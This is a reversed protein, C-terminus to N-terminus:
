LTHVKERSRADYNWTWRNVLYTALLILALFIGVLASNIMTSSGSFGAFLQNRSVAFPALKNSVTLMRTTLVKSGDQTLTELAVVHTGNTLYTTNLTPANGGSDKIVRGDVSLRTRVANHVPNILRLTGSVYPSSDPSIAIPTRSDSLLAFFPLTLGPMIPGSAVNAQRHTTIQLSTRESANGTSDFAEVSMDYTKNPELGRQIFRNSRTTGIEQNGNFIRYGAVRINDSSHRWAIGLARDTILAARLQTPTNPAQADTTPAATKVILAASDPSINGATDFAKVTYSYQSKTNVTKDVFSNTDSTAIQVNDRSVKYGAVRQNDTSPAWSLAVQNASITDAQLGIPTSPAETDAPPANAVTFTISKEVAGLNYTAVARLTHQGNTLQHTDYPLCTTANHGGLCYPENKESITPIGDISFDVRSTGAMNVPIAQITANNSVTASSTLGTITLSPPPTPTPSPSPSTSPSPTSTITPSPQNSPTPIPTPTQPVATPTPTPTATSAPTPTAAAACNDGFGSPICAPDSAFVIRDLIVNPESGAMVLTHAGATLAVNIVNATQGDQYSVWSWQNVPLPGNGVIMGCGNDIQLIYANSTTDPTQIRSWVRYTGDAPIQVTATVKGLAENIPACAAQATQSVTLALLPSLALLPAILAIQGALRFKM